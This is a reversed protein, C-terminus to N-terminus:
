ITDTRGVHYFYANLNRIEFEKKWTDIKKTMYMTRLDNPATTASLIQTCM